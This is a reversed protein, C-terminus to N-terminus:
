NKWLYTGFNVKRINFDNRMDESLGTMYCLEPILCIIDDAIKGCENNNTAKSRNFLLPQRLDKIVIDYQKRQVFVVFIHLNQNFNINSNSRYKYKYYDIYTIKKNHHYNFEATPHQDWLIDDIRYTKNNYKTLVIHGVLAKTVENKFQNMDGNSRKWLDNMLDWSTESRLVKHAIDMTM